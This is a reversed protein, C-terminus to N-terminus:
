CFCKPYSYITKNVQKMAKVGVTDIFNIPSCDIIVFYVDLEPMLLKNEPISEIDDEDLDSKEKKLEDAEGM